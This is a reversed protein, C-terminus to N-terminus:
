FVKLGNMIVRSIRQNFVVLVRLGKIVQMHFSAACQATKKESATKRLYVCIVAVACGNARQILSDM